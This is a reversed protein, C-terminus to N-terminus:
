CLTKNTEDDIVENLFFPPHLSRINPKSYGHKFPMTPLTYSYPPSCNHPNKKRLTYDTIVQRATVVDM